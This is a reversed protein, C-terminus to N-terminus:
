TESADLFARGAGKERAAQLREMRERLEVVLVAHHNAADADSCDSQLISEYLFHAFTSAEIIALNMEDLIGLKTTDKTDTM